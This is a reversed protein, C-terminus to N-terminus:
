GRCNALDIQYEKLKSILMNSLYLGTNIFDMFYEKIEVDTIENNSDM